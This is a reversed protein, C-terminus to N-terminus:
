RSLIGVLFKRAHCLFTFFGTLFWHWLRYTSRILHKRVLKLTFVTGPVLKLTFITLPSFNFKQLVQPVLLVSLGKPYCNRTGGMPADGGGGGGRV